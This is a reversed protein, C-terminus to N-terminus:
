SFPCFLAGQGRSRKGNKQAMRAEASQVHSGSKKLFGKSFLLTLFFNKVKM